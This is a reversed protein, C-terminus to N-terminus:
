TDTKGNKSAPASGASSASRGASIQSSIQLFSRQREDYRGVAVSGFWVTWLADDV